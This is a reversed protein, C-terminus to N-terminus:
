GKFPECIYRLLIFVFLAVEAMFIYLCLRGWIYMYPPHQTRSIPSLQTKDCLFIKGFIHTRRYRFASRSFTITGTKRPREQLPPLSAYVSDNVQNGGKDRCRLMITARARASLICIRNPTASVPACKALKVFNTGLEFQKRTIDTFVVFTCAAMKCYYAKVYVRLKGFAPHKKCIYPSFM